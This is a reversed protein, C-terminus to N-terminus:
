GSVVYESFWETHRNKNKYGFSLTNNMYKDQGGGGEEKGLLWSELWKGPLSDLKQM